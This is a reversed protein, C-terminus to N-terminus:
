STASVILVRSVSADRISVSRLDRLRSTYPQGLRRVTAKRQVQEALADATKVAESSHRTEVYGSKRTLRQLWWSMALINCVKTTADCLGCRYRSGESAPFPGDRRAPLAQM